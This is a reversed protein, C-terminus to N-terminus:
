LLNRADGASNRKCLRAQCTHSLHLGTKMTRQAMKLSIKSWENIVRNVNFKYPQDLNRNSLLHSGADAADAERDVGL